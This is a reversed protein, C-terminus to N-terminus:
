GLGGNMGASQAPTPTQPQVTGSNVQAAGSPVATNTYAATGSIRIEEVWIDVAMMSVGNRATRKFDHHTINCSPYVYEPMYLDFLTTSKQAALVSSLFASRQAEDGSIMYTVRGSFPTSVKNYSLFAGAEQPATSIRHDLRFELDAVSQSTGNLASLVQAIIGSAAAAAFAPQGAQTFIGWKPAKFMNIIEIADSVLLVVTNQITDVTRLLTPVGPANPVNPYTPKPTNPIAM